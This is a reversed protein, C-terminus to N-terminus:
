LGRMRACEPGIGSTISAPVTLKRGCCGCRGEHYIKVTSALARDAQIRAWIYEFAKHSTADPGIPSKSGLDYTETRASITGLYTYSNENDSGTLVKVFYIGVTGNDNKKATVKFTFRKGTAENEVTFTAKGGLIFAKRTTTLENRVLTTM